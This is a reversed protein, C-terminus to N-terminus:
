NGLRKNEEKNSQEVNNQSFKTGLSFNYSFSLSVNRTQRKQYFDIVTGNNVSFEKERVTNFLDYMYLRLLGKEKLVKQSVLLDFYFMHGLRTNGSISPSKYESIVDLVPLKGMTITHMSKASLTAKIKGLTYIQNSVKYIAISNNTRWIKSIRPSANINLGYEQGNKVNFSKYEVVNNDITNALLAILNTTSAYYIDINYNSLFNYGGQINHTYQPLLDPNGTLVMYDHVQLRYPNLDNFSPRQLRKAYNIFASSGKADNITRMLFVSPFLGFYRKSFGNDATVSLGDSFTEEARLGVKISNAGIVKELTTYLMALQEKYLFRNSVSPNNVWNGQQYNESISENDRDISSYKIGSKLETKDKWSKTYDLQAAYIGTSSPTLTRSRLDRSPDNYITSLRNQEDKSNKSYDGIFKLASGLSDIKWTYNVTTSGFKVNRDWNAQAYGMLDFNGRYSIDTLFVQTPRNVSATNQIAISQKDSINYVGSVRYQYRSINNNRETQNSFITRDPYNV